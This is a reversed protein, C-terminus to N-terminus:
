GLLLGRVQRIKLALQLNLRRDADDLDLSTLTHIRQLRYVLTNVHVQLAEATRQLTCNHELYQELTRLLEAGHAQDYRELSGLFQNAFVLLSSADQRNLFLRFVGLDEFAVVQSSGGLSRIVEAAQTAERYAMGFHEPGLCVRGIGVSITLEPVQRVMEKRVVEAQERAEALVAASLPVTAIISDGRTTIMTCERSRALTSGIVERLTRKVADVKVESWKRQAATAAFDDVHFVLLGYPRKLDYGLHAAKRRTAELDDMERSVLEDLLERGLRREVEAATRQKMLELAVVTATHEVALFDTEELGRREVVSLYGLLDGGAIVPALVRPLDMGIEAIPSIYVPRREQRLLEFVRRLEPHEPQEAFVTSTLTLNGGDTREVEAVALLNLFRDEVIVPNELFRALTDVIAQLGRNDLVIQTLEDHMATIRKLMQHQSEVTSHLTRLEAMAQREREYLRAREIAVAAQDAIHSLLSLESKPFEYSTRRYLSLVGVTVGHVNIPAGAFAHFDERTTTATLYLRPDGQMDRCTLLEGSSAVRGAFGEGVRLRSTRADATLIGRSAKTVLEDGEVLGVNVAEVGLVEGVSDALLQLIAGLELGSNLARTVTYLVGLERNAQRQQGLLSVNEDAATAEHAVIGLITGLLKAAVEAQSRNARPIDRIAKRIAQRPVGQELLTAELTALNVEPCVFPGVVVTVCVGITPVSVPSLSCTLGRVCCGQGPALGRRVYSCRLDTNLALQCLRGTQYGGALLTGDTTVVAAPLGIAGTFATVLQDLEARDVFRLLRGAGDPLHDAMSTVPDSNAPLIERSM